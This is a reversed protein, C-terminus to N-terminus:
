TKRAGRRGQANQSWATDRNMSVSTRRIANVRDKLEERREARERAERADRQAELDRVKRERDRVVRDDWLDSGALMDFVWAGPERFGGDDTELAILSMPAGPNHRAIHWRGPSAGAAVAEFPAPDPCWVLQLYPDVVELQADFEKKWKWEHDASIAELATAERQYREQLLEQSVKPPVWM